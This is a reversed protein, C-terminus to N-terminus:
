ENPVEPKVAQPQIPAAPELSPEVVSPQPLALQETLYHVVQVLKEIQHVV